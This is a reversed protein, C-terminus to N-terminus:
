KKDSTIYRRTKLDQEFDDDLMIPLNLRRKQDKRFRGPTQNFRASFTRNFHPVSKFGCTYAISKMSDDTDILKQKAKDLRISYLYQMITM